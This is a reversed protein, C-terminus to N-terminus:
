ADIHEQTQKAAGLGLAGRARAHLSPTVFLFVQYLISIESPVFPGVGIAVSSSHEICRAKSNM